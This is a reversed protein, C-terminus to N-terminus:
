QFSDEEQSEVVTTVEEKIGMMLNLQLRRIDTHDEPVQMACVKWEQVVKEREGIVMRVLGSPDVVSVSTLGQILRPTSLLLEELFDDARDYKLHGTFHTSLREVFFERLFSTTATQQLHNNDTPNPPERELIRYVSEQTALLKLLDFNGKRLPSPAEETNPDWDLFGLGHRPILPGDTPGESRLGEFYSGMAERGMRDITDLDKVFERAIQERVSVIGACLKAPEIDLEYDPVHARSSEILQYENPTNMLNLFYSEWTPFLTTNLAGLGHYRLLRSDGTPDQFQEALGTSNGRQVFPVTIASPQTFTEVWRITFVDKMQRRLFLYSQVSCQTLFYGFTDRPHNQLINDSDSDADQAESRLVSATATNTRHSFTPTIHFGNTIPVLITAALCSVYRM